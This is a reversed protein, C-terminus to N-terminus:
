FTAVFGYLLVFFGTSRDEQTALVNQETQDPCESDILLHRGVTLPMYLEEGGASYLVTIAGLM